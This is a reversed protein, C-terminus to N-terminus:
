FNLQWLKIKGDDFILFYKKSLKKEIELITDQSFNTGDLEVFKFYGDSLAQLYAELGELDQYSFVFPGSINESSLQNELALTVVDDAEALIRDKTSVKNKLVEIMKTTNPWSTELRWVQPLSSNLNFLIVLITILIGTKQYKQTISAFTAGAIPLIFILSFFSHQAVSLINRTLLHVGLPLLSALFLTTTLLGKGKKILFILGPISLLYALNTYQWFENFIEGVEGKEGLAQSILFEKLTAFNILSYVGTLLILPLLFFKFAHKKLLYINAILLLPFFMAVTYKALFALFLLLAAYFFWSRKDSTMAKQLIVLGAMFCSFSLSDYIALRSLFIPIASTALFFAAFLASTQARKFFILQKTFYYFLLVTVTGLLVNLFRTALIGGATYLFASIAPYFFPFGGVWSISEVVEQTSGGLLKKGLLIYITEDLFISNYDLNVFRVLFAALAIFLLTIKFFNVKSLM